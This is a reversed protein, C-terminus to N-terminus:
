YTNHAYVSRYDMCTRITIHITSTLNYDSWLAIIMAKIIHLTGSCHELGISDCSDCGTVSILWNADLVQERGGARSRHAHGSWRNQTHANDPWARKKQRIKKKKKKPFIEEKKKEIEFM